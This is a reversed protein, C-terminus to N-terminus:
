AAAELPQHRDRWWALLLWVLYVAWLVLLIKPSGGTRLPILLAMYVCFAFTTVGSVAIAWDRGRRIWRSFAVQALGQYLLIGGTTFLLVQSPEYARHQKVVVSIVAVTHGTGGLTTLIGLVLAAWSARHLSPPRGQQM